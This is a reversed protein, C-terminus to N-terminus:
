YCTKRRATYRKSLTQKAGNTELINKRRAVNPFFYSGIIKHQTNCKVIISIHGKKQTAKIDRHDDFTDKVIM